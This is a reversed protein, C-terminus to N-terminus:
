AETASLVLIIIESLDLHMDFLDYLYSKKFGLVVLFKHLVAHVEFNFGGIIRVLYFKLEDFRVIDM